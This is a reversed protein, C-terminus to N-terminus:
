FTKVCREFHHWIAYPATPSNSLTREIVGRVADQTITIDDDSLGHADIQRKPEHRPPVPHCDNAAVEFM